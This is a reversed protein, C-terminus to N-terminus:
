VKGCNNFTGTHLHLLSLGLNYNKVCCYKSLDWNRIELDTHKATSHAGLEATKDLSIANLVIISPRASVLFPSFSHYELFDIAYLVCSDNTVIEEGSQLFVV